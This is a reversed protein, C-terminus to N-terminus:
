PAWTVQGTQTANFGRVRSGLYQKRPCGASDRYMVVYWRSQGPLIVDGAAASSASVTRDGAGFDPATISGGSATKSFLKRLPGGACRVGQGYVVGSAALASGQLVLSAAAPTEGSTTLVLSDMSLYTVGSAALAAGGTAASNDCGRGSGSPPNACPCAIVGDVGPDCLSTFSTAYRDHIFVDFAGNTDDPVLNHAFSHFGIYRGDASISANGSEAGGQAGSSDVSMRGTTASQRDRLFVDLAGNTDGPILNTAWSEFAVYRGDGSIAPRSSDGDGPAGSSDVSVQETTGNVRDHVFVDLVGNADRPVLNTASSGFAVCRGDGSISPNQSDGNAQAGSTDVSVRETTGNLRDRVFVDLIGNTDGTVLNTASSQFAVYRGDGSISAFTSDGDGEAGNSDVSVRETTGNLRDRVFVDVVGNTDGAVLDPASSYFTVYRGDSSLSPAYSDGTAQNGSSDVSVRTTEGTITDHVFVDWDSNTDGPVLNSAHSEYAVYRGDASISPNLSNHNGQVGSSDVTMRATAGNQRDRLFIDWAANTDGPVLNTAVSWFVVFRGDASVASEIKQAMFSHDNAQAGASDLSVRQTIQAWSTGGVILALGAVQLAQRMMTARKEHQRM